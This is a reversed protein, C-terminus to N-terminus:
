VSARSQRANGRGSPRSEKPSAARAPMAVAEVRSRFWADIYNSPWAVVRPGIKIPPPFTGAAVMEYITSQSLGTRERLESARFCPLEPTLGEWPKARAREPNSAAAVSIATVARADDRRRPSTPRPSITKTM